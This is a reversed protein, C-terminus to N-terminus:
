AAKEKPKFDWPTLKGDVYYPEADKLWKISAAPEAKIRVDPVVLKMERVMIDAQRHGAAHLNGLKHEMLTEDHAAVWLRSGWLPSDPQGYAEGTIAILAKKMGHAALAQFGNNAAAPGHPSGRVRKSGFDTIADKLELETMVWKWYKKVEPWKFLYSSRIVEAQEICRVCLPADLPNNKYEMCKREGCKGDGFFWECVSASAKNQAIVFKAAGMMGPFGFNGAKGAQRIDKIAKDGSKLRKVFEEYDTGLLEAGLICHPDKGANIAEALASYGVTWLCVQALTSLEIAAFDVSCLAHGPRAEFCDRVGGKRPMLQVLGAYSMRGTSLLINVPVNMPGRAAEELAGAYTLFKEWKGLEALKVLEKHGSDELTERSISTAGGETKPAQGMYAAEVAAKIVKTDKSLEVSGRKKPKMYGNKLAEARLEVLKTDVNDKFEEVSKPNARLGWISGLHVCFASHAQTQMDHLNKATKLQAEAVELTNTVDDVPYQRADWPWQELPLKELLAYSLRWRDHEKANDRGLWEKVCEALSYRGSQIKSGDRRFLEGDRMRGEAIANLSAAIQVDFVRGEEYARWVLPFLDPREALLCGFDYAINAGVWTDDDKLLGEVAIIGQDRYKEHVVSDIGGDSTRWALAHCVIPPALLGPQVKHTELDWSLLRM